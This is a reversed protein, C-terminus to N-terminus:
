YALGVTESNTKAPVAHAVVDDYLRGGYRYNATSNSYQLYPHTNIRSKLSGWDLIHVMQGWKCILFFKQIKVGPVGRYMGESLQSGIFHPDFNIKPWLVM